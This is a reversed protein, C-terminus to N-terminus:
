EGMEDKNSQERREQVGGEERLHCPTTNIQMTVPIVDCVTLTRRDKAGLLAM